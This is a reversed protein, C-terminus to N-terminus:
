VWPLIFTINESFCLIIVIDKFNKSILCTWKEFYMQNISCNPFFNLLRFTRYCIEQSHSSQWLFFPVLLERSSTRLSVPKSSFNRKYGWCESSSRRGNRFILERNTAVEVPAPSGVPPGQPRRSAVGASTTGRLEALKGLMRVRCGRSKSGYEIRWSGHGIREPNIGNALCCQWEIVAYILKLFIWGLHFIIKFAITNLSQNLISISILILQYQFSFSNIWFNIM